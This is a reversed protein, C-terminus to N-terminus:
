GHSLGGRLKDDKSISLMGNEKKPNLKQKKIIRKNEVKDKALDSYTLVKNTIFKFLYYLPFIFITIIWFCNVASTIDICSEWNERRKEIKTYFSNFFIYLVRELIIGIIFYTGTFLIGFIIFHEEIYSYM